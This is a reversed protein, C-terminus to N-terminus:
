SQLEDNGGTNPLVRGDDVTIVVSAGLMDRLGTYADSRMFEALAPRDRQIALCAKPKIEPPLDNLRFTRRM